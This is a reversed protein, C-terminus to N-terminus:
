LYHTIIATWVNREYIIQVSIIEVDTKHYFDGVLQILTKFGAESTLITTKM